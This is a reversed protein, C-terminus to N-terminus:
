FDQDLDKSGNIHYSASSLERMPLGGQLGALQDDDLEAGLSAITDIRVPKRDMNMEMETLPPASADGDFPQLRDPGM